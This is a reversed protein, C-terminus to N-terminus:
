RANKFLYDHQSLQEIFEYDHSLLFSIVKDKNRSEICLYKFRFLNHDIGKLVEIESGEVDLSLFDILNPANGQILLDNLPQAIAGFSFNNENPKLHIKGYAAHQNPNTLDSELGLPFSMLNSYYIEVFKEKYDFSTCANCFIITKANRNERCLLYNNPSPEVLIGKWNRYKEFYLTNSQTKGDNAGLEVFFGNNYNLYKEIKKDLNELGYYKNKNNIIAKLTKLLFPPLVEKLFNKISQKISFDSLAIYKM